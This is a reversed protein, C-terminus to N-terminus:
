WFRNSLPKKDDVLRRHLINSSMSSWGNGIYVSAKRGIEMDVAMNVGTQEVDLVLEKTSVINKWPRKGLRILSSKFEDIWDQEANTMVFLIELKVGNGMKAEWAARSDEIKALLYENTPLCRRLYFDIHDEPAKPSKFQNPPATFPDLLEPLLNWGYFTSNWQAFGICANIYDGRRIHVAMMQQFPDYNLDSKREPPYFLHLNQDIASQVLPSAALLRSIPSRRFEEWITLLRGDGIM